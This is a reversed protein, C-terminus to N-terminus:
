YLGETVPDGGKMQTGGLWAHNSKSEWPDPPWLYPPQVAPPPWMGHDRKTHWAERFWAHLFQFGLWCCWAHKHLTIGMLYAGATVPGALWVTSYNLTLRLVTTNVRLKFVSVSKLVSFKIQFDNETVHSVLVLSSKQSAGRSHLWSVYILSRRLFFHIWERRQLEFMEADLVFVIQIDTHEASKLFM